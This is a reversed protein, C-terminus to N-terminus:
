KSLSYYSIRVSLPCLFGMVLACLTAHLAFAGRGVGLAESVPTYFVGVSNTFVGVSSAALLCCCILTLLYRGNKQKMM